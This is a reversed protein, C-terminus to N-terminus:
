KVTMTEPSSIWAYITYVALALMTGFCLWLVADSKWTPAIRRDTRKYRLFITGGTVIPMM